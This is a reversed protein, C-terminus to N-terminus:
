PRQLDLTFGRVYTPCGQATVSEPEQRLAADVLAGGISDADTIVCLSSLPIAWPIKSGDRTSLILQAHLGCEVTTHGQSDGVLYM